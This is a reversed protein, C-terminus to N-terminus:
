FIWLAQCLIGYKNSYAGGEFLCRMQSLFTLLCRGRILAVGGIHRKNSSNQIVLFFRCLLESEGSINKARTIM